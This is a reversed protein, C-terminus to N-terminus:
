KKDEEFDVKMIEGSPTPFGDEVQKRLKEVNDKAKSLMEESFSESNPEILVEISASRGMLKQFYDEVDDPLQNKIYRPDEQWVDRFKQEVVAVQNKLDSFSIETM